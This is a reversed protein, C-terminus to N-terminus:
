LLCCFGIVPPLAVPHPADCERSLTSLRQCYVEFQKMNVAPDVPGITFV